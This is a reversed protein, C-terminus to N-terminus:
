TSVLLVLFGVGFMSSLEYINPWICIEASNFRQWDRVDFRSFFDFEFEFGFM